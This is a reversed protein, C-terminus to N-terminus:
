APRRAAVERQLALIGNDRFEITVEGAKADFKVTEVLLHLVRQRERPELADWVPGFRALADRIGAEDLTNAEIGALQAAVEDLRTQVRAIQEDLETIRGAISATATGGTQLADLLNSRQGTLATRDNTLRRVEAVLEPRQTARQREAATVTALLVEPDSGIGRIQNLVVEELEGAPARSGPCATAGQKVATSCTYYRHLRPGRANASHTMAAGCRACRLLGALVAGHRGPSVRFPRLNDKLARQVENFLARTVIAEHKGDVLEDGCRIRGTVIPNTLLTHLTTKDFPKGLVQTGSKNTWSKTRIGRRALEEVTAVLGGHHLYLDFVLRVTAAEDPNVILTKDVVDYGLTPRGGTFMGKRRTAHVKDRTRERITEREFQAFSMLIGLTLKGLSTATSFQQTVSVLAIGRKELRDCVQAFDLLSRSLRDLRHVVIVNVEGRGVADMLRTFAPRDISGGSYGDDVFPEPIAVWGLAQQSAIYARIAETQATVSDFELGRSVSARAYVAVKVSTPPITTAATTPKVRKM